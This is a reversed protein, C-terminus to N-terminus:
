RCQRLDAIELPLLNRLDPYSREVEPDPLTRQPPSARKRNWKVGNADVFVVREFDDETKYTAVQCPGLTGVRIAPVTEMLFQNERKSQEIVVDEVPFSGFNVVLITSSVTPKSGPDDFNAEQQISFVVGQAYEAEERGQQRSDARDAVLYGAVSVALAGASLVVALLDVWPRGSQQVPQVDAPADPM